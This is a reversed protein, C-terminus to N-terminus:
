HPFRENKENKEKASERNNRTRGNGEHSRQKLKEISLLIQENTAPISFEPEYRHDAVASIADKIALWASFALMFPPEGIAKSNRITHPNPADKLLEVRFDQPIDQITPIKYTDPSHTLLYGKDNWKIEETTCWGLGQIFGGRIQGIDIEPYLSNGADHLIDTRLISHSGTLCDVVVDTVAMGFAYYYFPRGWGKIKDWGIEPTRYFGTASLSIRRLNMQVMADTFPMTRDPHEADFIADNKFQISDAQSPESPNIESFLLAMEPAIRHKLTDIAIKVAMGNMDAGSSAATASTNPVKSTNTAGIKIRDLELGFEAAAIHQIKSNLGQGM